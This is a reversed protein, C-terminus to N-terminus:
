RTTLSMVMRNLRRRPWGSVGNSALTTQPCRASDHAAGLSHWSSYHPLAMPKLPTEIDGVKLLAPLSSAFRLDGRVDALHLPKIGLWDRVMLARGSRPDILVFAFMGILHDVFLEAGQRYAKLVVETDFTSHFQHGLATL